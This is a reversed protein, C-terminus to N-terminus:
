LLHILIEAPKCNRKAKKPLKKKNKTKLLFSQVITIGVTKLNVLLMQQTRSHGIFNLYAYTPNEVNGGTYGSIVSLIGEREEFPQVMCWFCGGAFIARETAM